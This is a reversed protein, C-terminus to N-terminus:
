NRTISITTVLKDNLPNISRNHGSWFSRVKWGSNKLRKLFEHCLKVYENLKELDELNKDLYEELNKEDADFSMTNEYSIQIIYSEDFLDSPKFEIKCGIDSLDIFLDKIDEMNEFDVKESEPGPTKFENIRKLHKM